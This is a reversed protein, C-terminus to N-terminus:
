HDDDCVVPCSSGASGIARPPTIPLPSAVGQAFRAPALLAALQTCNPALRIVGQEKGVVVLFLWRITNM